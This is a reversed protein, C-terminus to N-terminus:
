QHGRHQDHSRTGLVLPRFKQYILRQLLIKVAESFFSGQAIYDDIVFGELYGSVYSDDRGGIDDPLAYVGVLLGIGHDYIFEIPFACVVEFTLKKYKVFETMTRDVSWVEIVRICVSIAHVDHGATCPQTM